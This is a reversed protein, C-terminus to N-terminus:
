RRHRIWKLLVCRYSYIQSEKSKKRHSDGWSHFSFSQKQTVKKASKMVCVISSTYYIRLLSDSPITSPSISSSNIPKHISLTDIHLYISPNNSLCISLYISRSISLHKLTYPLPIYNHMSLHTSPHFSPYINSPHIVLCISRSISQYM